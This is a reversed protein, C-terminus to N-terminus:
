WRSVLDRPSCVGRLDCLVDCKRPQTTPQFNAKGLASTGYQFICRRPRAVAFGVVFAQQENAIAAFNEAVEIARVRSQNGLGFHGAELRRFRKRARGPVFAFVNSRPFTAMRQPSFSVQSRALM